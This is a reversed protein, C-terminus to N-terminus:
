ISHSPKVVLEAKEVIGFCSKLSCCNHHKRYLLFTLSFDRLNVKYFPSSSSRMIIYYVDEGIQSFIKGLKLLSIISVMNKYM